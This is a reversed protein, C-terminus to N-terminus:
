KHLLKKIIYKLDKTVYRVAKKVKKDNYAGIVAGIAGGIILTFM